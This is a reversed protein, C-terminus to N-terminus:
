LVTFVSSTGTYPTVDDSLPGHKAYGFHKIRYKGQPTSASTTWQITAESEPLVEHRKWMFKTDWDSDTLIVEWANTTPSLSEVTLFTSETFLHNRPNGAAFVVEVTDGRNYTAEVDTKTQGFHGGLPAMDVVVPLIFSLPESVVRPTTGPNVPTGKVIATAMQEFFMQYAALTHPGFITSAGEYRQNSYEELTTIYGTYTNSLGAVVVITDKIGAADFVAKVTNRLRRGSMTSFEGPVGLIVLQGITIIQVPVITPTWPYPHTEGVDLLIPKPFHCAIQEPGPKAVFSGIFNWFPNSSKNDNQTFDFAGPGDTTGAAFSYGMAARCTRGINQGDKTVTVNTMDVFMHRYSIKGSVQNAASSYLKRAMDYQQTGIIKTSEFMDKGPGFAICQENRGDCTSSNMSCDRGDPCKAGATNPSVDGENAQAFAAVFSGNGFYVQNNVSKEFLYSAYGKNDSSILHNTNNMSTCHVPFWSIAGMDAGSNDVIRLVTMNKDTDGDPYLARESAPNALYASPSRNINTNALHGVNSFIKGSKVNNHARVIAQVIGNVAADFSEQCFGFSTVEYLLYWSYGGPGSHTHIGSLMVNDHTYMTPGYIAQLKEIVTMKFSQMTMCLDSSVFVARNGAADVFVYARSWQRLHIGASRQGPMAYGMMNIEAAPGTVDYKGVGISLGGDAAQQIVEDINENNIVPIQKTLVATFLFLLVFVRNM